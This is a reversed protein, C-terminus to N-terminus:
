TVANLVGYVGALNFHKSDGTFWLLSVLVEFLESLCRLTEISSATLRSFAEKVETNNECIMTKVDEQM